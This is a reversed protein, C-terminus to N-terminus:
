WKLFTDTDLKIFSLEKLHRTEPEEREYINCKIQPEFPTVEFCSESGLAGLLRSVMVPKSLCSKIEKQSSPILSFEDGPAGCVRNLLLKNLM